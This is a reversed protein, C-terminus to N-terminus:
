GRQRCYSSKRTQQDSVTRTQNM